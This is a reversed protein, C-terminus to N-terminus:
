GGLDAVLRALVDTSLRVTGDPATRTVPTLRGDPARLHVHAPYPVDGRAASTTVWALLGRAAAVVSAGTVVHLALADAHAVAVLTGLPARTGISALTGDLVHLRSPALGDGTTLLHLDVGGQLGVRHHEPPALLRLADLASAGVAEWGGHEAPDRVVRAEGDLVVMLCARLHPSLLAGVEDGLLGAPVVGAVFRRELAALAHPPPPAQPVLRAVLQEVAAARRQPAVRATARVVEPLDVVVGAATTVAHASHTVPPHGLGALARTVETRLALAHMRTLPPLWPDPDGFADSPPLDLFGAAPAPPPPPTRRPRRWFSPM